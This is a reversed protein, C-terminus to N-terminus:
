LEFVVVIILAIYLSHFDSLRLCLISSTIAAADTIATIPSVQSAIQM